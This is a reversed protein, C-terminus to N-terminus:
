PKGENTTTKESTTKPCNSIGAQKETSTLLQMKTKVLLRKLEGLYQKYACKKTCYHEPKGDLCYFFKRLTLDKGCSYCKNGVEDQEGNFEKCKDCVPCIWEESM